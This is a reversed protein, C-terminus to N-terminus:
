DYRMVLMGVEGAIGAPLGEAQIIYRVFKVEAQGDSKLWAFDIQLKATETQV